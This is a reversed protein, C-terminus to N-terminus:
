CRTAISLNARLRSLDGEPLRPFREYLTAAIACNM